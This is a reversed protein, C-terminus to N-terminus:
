FHHLKSSYMKFKSSLYVKRPTTHTTNLVKGFFKGLHCRRLPIKGLPLKGFTCNGLHCSGLPSTLGESAGGAAIRPRASRNHHALPDLVAAIASKPLQRKANTFNGRPSIDKSLQWKPFISQFYCQTLQWQFHPCM